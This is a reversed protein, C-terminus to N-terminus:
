KRECWMKWIKTCNEGRNMDTEHGTKTRHRGQTPSKDKGNFVQIVLVQESHPFPYILSKPQPQLKM